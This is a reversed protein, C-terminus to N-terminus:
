NLHKYMVYHPGVEPIHFRDSLIEFNLKKYFGVAMERANCWLMEVKMKKLESESFRVLEKGIDKGRYAPDVAMGRLQYQSVGPLHDTKARFLSLIGVCKSDAFAGIHKTSKLHDGEMHSSSRPKGERLVLHRLDITDDSSIYKVEVPM